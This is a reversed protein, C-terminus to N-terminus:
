VAGTRLCAVRFRCVASQPATHTAPKQQMTAHWQYVFDQTLSHLLICRTTMARPNTEQRSLFLWARRKRSSPLPRPFALPNFVSHPAQLENAGRGRGRGWPRFNLRHRQWLIQELQFMNATLIMFDTFKRRSFQGNSREYADWPTLRAKPVIRDSFQLAVTSSQTQWKKKKQLDSM